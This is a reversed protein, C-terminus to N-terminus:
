SLWNLWLYFEVSAWGWSPWDAGAGGSITQAIECWPTSPQLCFFLILRGEDFFGFAIGVEGLEKGGTFRQSKACASVHFSSLSAARIEAEHGDALLVM